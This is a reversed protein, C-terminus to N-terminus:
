RGTAAETTWNTVLTLLQANRENLVNLAFRQGDPMPAYPRAFDETGAWNFIARFLERATSHRFTAGAEVNVVMLRNQPGIFYLERGDRRWSPMAGGQTSVQWRSSDSLSTVYVERRGTQDSSYALLRNDPSLSGTLDNFPTQVLPTLKQEKIDFRLLDFGTQGNVAGVVLWARDRSWDFSLFGSPHNGIEQAQGRGDASRRYIVGDNKRDNTYAVDADDASWVQYMDSGEEFTLPGSTGRTLDYIWVDQSRAGPATISAALRTGDHSLALGGEVLVSEAITQVAIGKRDAVMLTSRSTGGDPLYVLTGNASVSAYVLENSDFMLGAAVPFVTGSVTLNKADFAQARLAGERWFLLFGADSYLPSSNATVLRTRVGTSITLAEVTSSDDKAGAEGTQAVFLLHEGDPLFVPWRHSKEGRKQDLTTLSTIAGGGADVVDLGTRFSGSFVIRNGPGWAGGRSSPAECIVQPPSGQLDTKKLKGDAFFAVQAGDPSWFPLSGGDTQALATPMSSALERIWLSSVGTEQNVATLVLRQGDPSLAFGAGITSGPPPALLAEVRPSAPSKSFGTLWLAGVVAAVIAAVGAVAWATRSGGSDIVPAAAEAPRGSMTQPNSLLLRAEGIDRLRQKPDRELCRQILTVFAPPTNAPLATWDPERMLVAALTTSIDEGEFARRGTLMEYLVVGFAWIDARRDVAKGKAQEPSMYAATGIILGMQTARATLTPSNMADSRGSTAPDLAKALGFDLVKVTGDDRVKVNAPKLDRHITGQEHAAELAEAIQRAIPLADALPMPGATIRDALTPGEILELVLAHTTGSDEFGYIHGINPHNLSALVQAERRFRALRDPDTAFTEPLIKLAVDRNLKADRARYVEGMGGAGIPELIEYSGLRTGPTLSM